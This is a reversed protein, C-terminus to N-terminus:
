EHRKRMMNFFRLRRYINYPNKFLICSKKPSFIMIISYKKIMILLLQELRTWILEGKKWLIFEVAKTKRNMRLVSNDTMDYGYVYKPQSSFAGYFYGSVLCIFIILLSM